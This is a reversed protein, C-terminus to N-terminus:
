RRQFGGVGNGTGGGLKSIEDDTLVDPMGDNSMDYPLGDKGMVRYPSRVGYMESAAAKQEPTLQQWANIDRVMPPPEQPKPVPVGLREADVVDRPVGLRDAVAYAQEMQARQEAQKKAIELADMRGGLLGQVAFSDGGSNRSIGDGIAALLGALVDRGGIKEGGQWYGPGNARGLLGM